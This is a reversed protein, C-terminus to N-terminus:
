GGTGGAETTASAEGAPTTVTGAGQTAEPAATTAEAGPTDATPDTGTAPTTEVPAPTGTTATPTPATSTETSSGPPEADTSGSDRKEGTGTRADDVVVQGSTRGGLDTGTVRAGTALQLGALFAAAIVFVAATAALVRRTTARDPRKWRRQDVLAVAGSRSRVLVVADKARAMSNTYLSAAIASVISLVAAGAITGVVGLRSGLAAATAAAMSGGLLQTLSLDLLKARPRADPDRDPHDRDPHGNDPHSEAAPDADGPTLPRTDPLDDTSQHTM